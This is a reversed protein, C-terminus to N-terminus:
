QTDRGQNLHVMATVTQVKAIKRELQLYSKM